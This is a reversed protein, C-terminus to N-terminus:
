ASQSGTGDTLMAERIPISGLPVRMREPTSYSTVDFVDPTIAYDALLPM